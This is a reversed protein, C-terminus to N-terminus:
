FFRALGATPPDHLIVVDGDRVGEVNEANSSLVHEYIDRQKEGLRGGDGRDGHIGAHLRASITLFEAPADLILWRADIGQEIAYGVIPAVIEAPGSGASANPTVTWVTRGDLLGHAAEVGDRLRRTAVEDLHSALDALHLPAVDITRM